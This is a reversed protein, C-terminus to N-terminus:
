CPCVEQKKSTKVAYRWVESTGTFSVGFLELGFTVTRSVQVPYRYTWSVYVEICDGEGAGNQVVGNPGSLDGGSNSVPLIATEGSDASEAPGMPDDFIADDEAGQPNGTGGNTWEAGAPEGPGGLEPREFELGVTAGDEICPDTNTNEAIAATLPLALALLICYKNM